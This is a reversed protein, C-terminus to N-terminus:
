FSEWWFEFLILEQCSDDFSHGRCVTSTPPEIGGAGVGTEERWGRPDDKMRVERRERPVFLRGQTVRHV